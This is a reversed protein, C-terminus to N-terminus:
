MQRLVRRTLVAAMEARYAADGRFDGLHMSAGSAAEAAAEISQENVGGQLVDEAATLGFPRPGLGTGALRISGGAPRWCTISVIPYDAPTRAVRESVGQGDIWSVSIESILGKPADEGQLYDSLSIKYAQPSLLILETELVLLTSLLESDNLRSAITGGLTASNRYTNPGAQHIGKLLLQTGAASAEEKRVIQSLGTLTVSAGIQLRDGKREVQNLGLAQLDVVGAQAVGAETALLKTGGGLAITDPQSLLRLAETMNEPRYYADPKKPM